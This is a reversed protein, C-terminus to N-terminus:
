HQERMDMYVTKGILWKKFKALFAFFVWVFLIKVAHFIDVINMITGTKELISNTVWSKLTKYTLNLFVPTFDRLWLSQGLSCFM